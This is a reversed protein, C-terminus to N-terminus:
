SKALIRQALTVFDVVTVSKFTKNYLHGFDRKDGTLLYDCQHAIAAALIPRDKEVLDVDIGLIASPLKAVLTEIEVFTEYWASRKLQINRQAAEYAYESTILDHHQAVQTIFLYINSAPNSASFLVNADLFIRM